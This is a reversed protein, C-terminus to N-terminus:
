HPSEKFQPNLPLRGFLRGASHVGADIWSEFKVAAVTSPSTLKRLAFM